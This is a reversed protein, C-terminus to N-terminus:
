LYGLTDSSTIGGSTLAATLANSLDIMTSCLPLALNSLILGIVLRPILEGPGYRTQITGRGMVMIAMALFALVYASDVVVRSTGAFAQVQKLNTVEPSQLLTSSALGWATDLAGTVVSMFWATVANIIMSELFGSM